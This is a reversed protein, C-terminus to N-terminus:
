VYVFQIHKITNSWCLSCGILINRVIGPPIFAFTLLSGVLILAFCAFLAIYIFRKNRVQPMNDVYYVLFPIIPFLLILRYDYNAALLYCTTWSLATIIAFIIVFRAKLLLQNSQLYRIYIYELKIKSGIVFGILVLAYPMVLSVSGVATILSVGYPIAFKIGAAFDLMRLYFASQNLSFSIGHAILGDTPKPISNSYKVLWSYSLALGSATGVFGSIISTKNCRILYSRSLLLLLPIIAFLPYLKSATLLFCVVAIACQIIMNKSNLAILFAFLGYLCFIVVDINGRELALNMPLSLFVLSVLPAVITLKLPINYFSYITLAILFTGFLFGLIATHSNNVHFYRAIIVSYPPYALSGVRGYVDCGLREGSALQDLDVNCASNAIVWRLDAFPPLMKIKAILPFAIHHGVETSYSLLSAYVNVLAAVFFFQRVTFVRFPIKQM